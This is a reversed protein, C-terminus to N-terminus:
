RFYEQRLIRLYTIDRGFPTGEKRQGEVSYDGEFSLYNYSGELYFKEDCIIAKYHINDRTIRFNLGADVFYMKLFEAVEDSRDSRTQDFLDHGTEIGYRIRIKVGRHLTAEMKRLLSDNVVYRNIWPSVIDIEEEAVDFAMLFAKKIDADKIHMPFKSYDKDIYEEAKEFDSNLFYIEGKCHNEIQELEHETFNNSGLVMCLDATDFPLTEGIYIGPIGQQLKKVDLVPIRRKMLFAKIEAKMETYPYIVIINKANTSRSVNHIYKLQDKFDQLDITKKSM